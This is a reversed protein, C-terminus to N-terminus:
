CMAPLMFLLSKGAGTGMVSVIPSESRMIAKIVLEQIGRFQAGTGVIRELPQYINFTRMRKWKAYQRDQDQSQWVRKRILVGLTSPFQLLRHWAESANRYQQRVSAVEGPAELIARAYIMGAVHSGHGAQLDLIHDRSTVGEEEDGDELGEEDERDDIFGEGKLCHRAIAIAIQRYASIGVSVGMGM